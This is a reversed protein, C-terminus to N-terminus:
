LQPRPALEFFDGLNDAGICAFGCTRQPAGSLLHLAVRDLLGVTSPTQAAGGPGPAIVLGQRYFADALRLRTAGETSVGTYALVEPRLGIRPQGLGLVAPATPSVRPDATPAVQLIVQDAKALAMFVTPEASAANAACLGGIMGAMALIGGLRTM